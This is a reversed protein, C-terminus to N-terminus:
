AHTLALDLRHLAQPTAPVGLRLADSYAEFPRVLIHAQALAHFLTGADCGTVYRFLPCAGHPRLGHRHLVTDLAAARTPLQARTRHIWPEDAYAAAAIALAASHIPWSGLLGRLRGLIAPPAIAFGLRLGALGFFKGFSRLVIVRGASSVHSAVTHDPHCDAFAEDILLWGGAAGIREGWELLAAPARLIGDPNNPNAIAVTQAGDPAEAFSITRTRDFAETHSRYAPALARGPLGLLPALLRLAVESGPVACVLAPDAGFYAAATHELRQLLAPDPLAAWDAFPPVPWPVPNLGTSLDLWDHRDGGYVRMAEALRGGHHLFAANM